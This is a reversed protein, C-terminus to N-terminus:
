TGGFTKAAATLSYNKSGINLREWQEASGTYHVSQLYLCNYFAMDHIKVTAASLMLESGARRPPYLLLESEDATFLVGDRDRYYPNNENVSLFVLNNCAAFALSGVLRVSRPIQIATVTNCGYFAQPAIEVVRDGNPSFEPIVVCADRCSGVGVLICTGDGYSRYLLGLEPEETVSAEETPAEASTVFPRPETRAETPAATIEEHTDTGQQGQAESFYSMGMLTATMVLAVVLAVAIAVPLIRMQPKM